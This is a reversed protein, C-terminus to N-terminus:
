RKKKVRSSSAHGLCLLGPEGLLREIAAGRFELLEGALAADLDRLLDFRRAFLAVQLLVASVVGGLLLLALHLRTSV